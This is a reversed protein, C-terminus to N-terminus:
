RDGKLINGHNGQEAPAQAKDHHQAKDEEQEKIRIVHFLMLESADKFQLVLHYALFILHDFLQM